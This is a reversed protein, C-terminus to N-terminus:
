WRGIKPSSFSSTQNLTCQINVPLSAPFGMSKREAFVWPLLYSDDTGTRTRATSRVFPAGCTSKSTGDAFVTRTRRNVADYEHATRNGNADTVSTQNGNGDYTFKSFISGVNEPVIANYYLYQQRNFSDYAFNTFRQVAALSDQFEERTLNGETDYSYAVKNGDADQVEKLWNVGDYYAYQTSFACGIGADVCNPLKM